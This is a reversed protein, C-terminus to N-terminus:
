PAAPCSTRRKTLTIENGAANFTVEDMFTRILMLGRGGIRELNAPDTPDPLTGPDFGPGEDRIIYVAESRRFRGRVHLRRDAYPSERRRRAILDFFPAEGDQRLDSSVELNGHHIANQLTEHLALDVRLAVNEDFLGLRLATEHLRGM